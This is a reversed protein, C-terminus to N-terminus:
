RSGAAFPPSPRDRTWLIYDLPPPEGGLERLRTAIQARHGQSHLLIQTLAECVKVQRGPFFPSELVRDLSADGAGDLWRLQQSQTSQFQTSLEALTLPVTSETEHHFPLGQCLHLWYRHAVLIHHLMERLKQDASATAHRQVSELIAADAYAQHRVRGQFLAIQPM